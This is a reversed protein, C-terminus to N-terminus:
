KQLAAATSTIESIEKTIIAQRSRNYELTLESILKSANDTANKMALRRASHESANAELIIHYIQMKFLLPLLANIAIEPSPEILFEQPRAPRAEILSRRLEAYRGTEPVLEQVTERIKVVDIPLLQRMIVEQRLASLFNTSFVIVRDWKKDEYGRVLQAALPEIEAYKFVDGFKTFQAVIDARKRKLYDAARQGVALYTFEPGNKSDTNELFNELKKFVAGNFPGALGKDAAILVIMTSKITRKELLSSQFIKSNDLEMALGESIDALMELASLAYPRSNLATEQARRMKTAAVLEMASTIQNVNKIGGIRKKLLQPSIM